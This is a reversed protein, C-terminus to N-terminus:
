KGEWIVPFLCCLHLYVYRGIATFLGNHKRDFYFADTPHYYSTPSYLYTFREKLSHHRNFCIPHKHDINCRGVFNETTFTDLGKSSATLAYDYDGFAHRYYPDNMGVKNYIYHPILVANGHMLRLKQMTGTCTIWGKPTRGGYTTIFPEHTSSICGAIIAQHNKKASCEILHHIASSLLMTDDNLWLYFDYVAKDHTAAKWAEYMGRNWYLNGDGQIITTEPLVKKVEAVTNDSCGDDTLYLHWQITHDIEQAMLHRLCQITKECRNHVTMLIAIHPM